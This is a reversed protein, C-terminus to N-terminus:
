RIIRRTPTRLPTAYKKFIISKESNKAIKKILNLLNKVQFKKTNKQIIDNKKEYNKSLDGSKCM